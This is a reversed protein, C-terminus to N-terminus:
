SPVQRCEWRLSFADSRGKFPSRFLDVKASSPSRNTVTAGGLSGTRTLNELASLQKELTALAAELDAQEVRLEGMRRRVSAMEMGIAAADGITM